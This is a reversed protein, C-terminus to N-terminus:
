DLPIPLPKCNELSQWASKKKKQLFALNSLRSGWGLSVECWPGGAEVEPGGCTVASYNWENKQKLWVNYLMLQMLVYRTICNVMFEKIIFFSM